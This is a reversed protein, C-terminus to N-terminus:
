GQKGDTVAPQSGKKLVTGCVMHVAPSCSELNAPQCEVYSFPLCSIIDVVFWGKLYHMAIIKPRNERFGNKDYFSTRFNIVVQATWDLM